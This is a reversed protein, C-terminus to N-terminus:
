TERIQINYAAEIIKKKLRYVPTRFGKVDEVIRVDDEFYLFDPRYKFLTRGAVVFPLDFGRELHRIRGARELLRLASWRRAEKMSDFVQDGVTTRKANYKSM